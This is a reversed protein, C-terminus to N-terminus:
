LKPLAGSSFTDNLKISYISFESGKHDIIYQAVGCIFYTNKVWKSCRCILPAVYTPHTLDELTMRYLPDNKDAMQQAIEKFYPVTVADVVGNTAKIFLLALMCRKLSGPKGCLDMASEWAQRLTDSCYDSTFKILNVILEKSPGEHNM